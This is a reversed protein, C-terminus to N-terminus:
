RAVAVGLLNESTGSTQPTWTVADASTLIASNYGVAVWEAGDNGVGM